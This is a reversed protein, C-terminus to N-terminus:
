AVASWTSGPNNSLFASATMSTGSMTWVAYDGTSTNYWLIDADGDGNYDGTAKVTWATGPNVTMVSSSSM